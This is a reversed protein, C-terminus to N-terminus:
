DAPGIELNEACQTLLDALQRRAGTSLGQVM